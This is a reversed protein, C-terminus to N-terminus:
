LLTVHLHSYRIHMSSVYYPPYLAILFLLLLLNLFYLLLYPTSTENGTEKNLRDRAEKLLRITGEAESLKDSIKELAMALRRKDEKLNRQSRALEELGHGDEYVQRWNILDDKLHTLEEIEKM